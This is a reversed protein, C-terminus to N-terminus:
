NIQCVWIYPKVTTVPNSSGSAAQPDLAAIVIDLWQTEHDNTVCRVDTDTIEFNGQANVGALLGTSKAGVFNPVNTYTFHITHGAPFGQGKITVEGGFQNRKTTATISGVPPPINCSGASFLVILLFLFKNLNM